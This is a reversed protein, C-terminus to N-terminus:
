RNSRRSIDNIVQEFAIKRRETEPLRDDFWQFHDLYGIWKKDLVDIKKIISGDKRITYIGQAQYGKIFKIFMHVPRLKSDSYKPKVCVVKGVLEARPKNGVIYIPAINFIADTSGYGKAIADKMSHEIFKAGYNEVIYTAM